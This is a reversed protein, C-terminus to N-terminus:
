LTASRKSSVAAQLSRPTLLFKSQSPPSSQMKQLIQWGCLNMNNGYWRRFVRYPVCNLFCSILAINKNERLSVYSLYTWLRKKLLRLSFDDVTFIKPHIGFVHLCYQTNSSRRRFTTQLCDILPGLILKIHLGKICCFFFVCISNLTRRESYKNSGKGNYVCYIIIYRNYYM